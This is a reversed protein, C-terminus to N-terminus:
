PAPPVEDPRPFTEPSVAPRRPRPAVLLPSIVTYVYCNSCPVPLTIKVRTPRSCFLCCVLDPLDVAHGHGHLIIFVRCLLLIQEIVRQVVVSVSCNAPLKRDQLWVACNEIRQEESEFTLYFEGM